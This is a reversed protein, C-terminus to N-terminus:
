TIKKIVAFDSINVGNIELDGQNIKVYDIKKVINELETETKIYNKIETYNKSEVANLFNKLSFKEGKNLFDSEAEFMNLEEIIYYGGDKLNKFLELFTIIQQYPVHSGDDIIIDLDNGVHSSINRLNKLSRTDCYLLKISKSNYKSAYPNKDVGIILSNKLFSKLAALSDGQHVGIELIKLNSNIQEQFIKEYFPTYFHGKIIEDSDKSKFKSGKNTKFHMFIEDLNKHEHSNQDINKVIGITSKLKFIFFKYLFLFGRTFAKYYKKQELQFAAYNLLNFTFDNLKKM